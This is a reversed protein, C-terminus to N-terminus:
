VGQWSDVKPRYVLDIGRSADLSAKLSGMGFGIAPFTMRGDTVWFKLAGRGLVRSQGKVSLGSTYFVPEPNGEGFPELRKMEPMLSPTIDSLNIQMDIEVSPILDNIKLKEFAFENLRERFAKINEQMISMGVAHEHGGYNDLLSSCHHLGDFLHFNRISRGSGRGKGSADMSILIAPRYFRDALKSAVIGLCGPHWGEKAVVIVKHEKFNIESDILAQAEELIQGEVKQRQRNCSELERALKEGEVADACLLLQLSREATDMRGSANIRPALIFSVTEATIEKDGIGATEMLMRLGPRSTSAISRLGQAAIMRNEGTLPVADAVTGMSVVDLQRYLDDGTLAQCFKFAVGVGALDRYRYGPLKPNVIASAPHDGSFSPEHHDTVIVDVGAKRLDAIIRTSNTGCDVTILLGIGRAKAMEVVNANLGYGERVRHPIYHEAEIGCSRLAEKLVVLSTVGDVDYDGYVLIKRKERAAKKALNVALGMEPFSFPDHLATISPSLFDQAEQPTKVGRNFLLQATIPSIKLSTSLLSRVEPSPVAINLLKPPM